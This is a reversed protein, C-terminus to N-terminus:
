HVDDSRDIDGDSLTLLYTRPFNRTNKLKRTPKISVRSEKTDTWRKNIARKMTELSEFRWVKFILQIPILSRALCASWGSVFTLGLM